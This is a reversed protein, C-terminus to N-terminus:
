KEVDKEPRPFPLSNCMTNEGNLLMKLRLVESELWQIEQYAERLKRKLEEDEDGM